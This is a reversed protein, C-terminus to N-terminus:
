AQDWADVLAVRRGPGDPTQKLFVPRGVPVCRSWFMPHPSVLKTHPRVFSTIPISSSCLTKCRYGGVFHLNCGGCARPPALRRCPGGPECCPCRRISYRDLPRTWAGRRVVGVDELQLDEAAQEDGCKRCSKVVRSWEDNEYTSGIVGSTRAASPSKAPNIGEYSPGLGDYV